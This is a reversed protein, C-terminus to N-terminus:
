MTRGCLFIIEYRGSLVLRDGVPRIYSQYYVATEPLKKKIKKELKVAKAVFVSSWLIRKFIKSSPEDIYAPLTIRSLNCKNVKPM